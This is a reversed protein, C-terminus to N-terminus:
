LNVKIIVARIDSQPIDGAKPVAKGCIYDAFLHHFMRPAPGGHCIVSSVMRGANYVSKDALKVLNTIPSSLWDRRSFDWM